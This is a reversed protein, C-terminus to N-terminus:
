AHQIWTLRRDLENFWLKSEHRTRHSAKGNSIIGELQTMLNNLIAVYQQKFKPPIAVDYAPNNPHLEKNSILTKLLTGTLRGKYPYFVDRPLFYSLYSRASYFHDWVSRSMDEATNYFYPGVKEVSKMSTKLFSIVYVVTALLALLTLTNMLDRAGPSKSCVMWKKFKQLRSPTEKIKLDKLQNMGDKVEAVEILRRGIKGTRKVCQGTKPNVIKDPPCVRVAM